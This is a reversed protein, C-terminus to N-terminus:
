LHLPKNTNPSSYEVMIKKPTDASISQKEGKFANLWFQDSISLNLFGKVVNFASVETLLNKLAEGLDNATQEPSKKSIKLLPFAVITLDGEFEPKCAQLQIQQKGVEVSYLQQVAKIAADTIIQEINM